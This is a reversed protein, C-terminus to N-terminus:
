VSIESSRIRRQTGLSFLCHASKTRLLRYGQQSKHLSVTSDATSWGEDAAVGVADGKGGMELLKTQCRAISFLPM